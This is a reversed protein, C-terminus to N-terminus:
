TGCAGLMLMVGAFSLMVGVVRRAGLPEGLVLWALLVIFISATENLVSAISAPAYKYGGLWLILALYSGLFSAAIALPWNHKGDYDRRLQQLRDRYLGVVVIGGIGALVRIQVIWIFPGTELIPKVMVIGLAMLFVGGIAYALGRRLNAPSIERAHARYSVLVVATVVLLFGVIQLASLREGLFLYSLIIVSPSYLSSAIGTRSAGMARLAELYYNDALAIGIVGSAILLTWELLSFVPAGMGHVLPITPVLLIAAFLNKFLNLATPSLTEGSRKFLVVAVAWTVASALSLAEGPGM